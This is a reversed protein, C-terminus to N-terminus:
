RASHYDDGHPGLWWAWYDNLLEEDVIPAHDDSDSGYHITCKPFAAVACLIATHIDPWPGREYHPGYFRAGDMDIEIRNPHWTARVPVGRVEHSGFFAEAAALEEDSVIGEAYLNVDLGM